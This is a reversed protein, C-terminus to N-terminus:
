RAEEAPALKDFFHRRPRAAEAAPNLWLVEVRSAGSDVPVRKSHTSWGAYMERYLPHDYHSVVVMSTSSTAWEALEVHDAEVLEHRYGDTARSTRVDHLYPPDVYFLTDAGEYRPVIEQWTRCEITVGTLRRVFSAIHDPYGAWDQSALIRGESEAARFGPRSEARLGASGHGQFSCVILRRAREVPDEITERAAVFETRAYPTLRLLYELREASEPDRLVRFLNVVDDDLDNYIESKARHKRLLVSGAGGFLEVYFRHPPLHRNVWDSVRGHTGFKGGHYRLIPRKVSM